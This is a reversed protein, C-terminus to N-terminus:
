PSDEELTQLRREISSFRSEYVQHQISILQEAHIADEKRYQGQSGAILTQRLDLFDARLADIQLAQTVLTGELRIVADSTSTTKNGFWLIIAILAVQVFSQFHREIAPKGNTSVESM